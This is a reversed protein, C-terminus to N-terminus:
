TMRQDIDVNLTKERERLSRLRPRQNKERLFVFALM